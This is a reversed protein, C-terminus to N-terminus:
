KTQYRRMKNVGMAKLKGSECLMQLDRELTRRPVSELKPLIDGISFSRLSEAIQFVRKRRLDPSENRLNKTLQKVRSLSSNAASSFTESLFDLIPGTTKERRSQRLSLYYMPRNAMIYMEHAAVSAIRKQGRLLLLYQMLRATRGNGDAFPHISVYIFHFVFSRLWPDLDHSKDLWQWLDKMLDPVADPPPCTDVTEGSSSVLRVPINRFKGNLNKPLLGRTLIAHIQLLDKMEIRPKTVLEETFKRAQLLNKTEFIEKETARKPSKGKLVSEVETTTLRNGEIQNSYTM